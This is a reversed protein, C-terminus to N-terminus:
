KSKIEWITSIMESLNINKPTLDQNFDVDRLVSSAINYSTDSYFYLDDGSYDISILDGLKVDLANSLIKAKDKADKSASILLKEKIDEKEKITFKIDLKPKVLSKSIANIADNLRENSFDFELKFIQRCEYGIFKEKYINNIDMYREYKTNVSYDFIKLDRRDFGVEELEEQLLNLLNDAKKMTDEYEYELSEIGIELEILNPKENLRGIGKVSIKRKM